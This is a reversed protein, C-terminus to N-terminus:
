LCRNDSWASSMSIIQACLENALISVALFVYLLEKVVKSSPIIEYSCCQSLIKTKIEHYKM